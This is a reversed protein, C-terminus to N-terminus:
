CTAVAGKSSVQAKANAQVKAKLQAKAEIQAEIQAQAQAQAQVKALFPGIATQKQSASSHIRTEDVTAQKHAVSSHINTEDATAQKHAVSSQTEVKDVPRRASKNKLTASKCKPTAAAGVSVSVRASADATVAVANDVVKQAKEQRAQVSLTKDGLAACIQQGVLGAPHNSVARGRAASNLSITRKCEECGSIDPLRRRVADSVSMRRPEAGAVAHIEQSVAALTFNLGGEFRVFIISEQYCSQVLVQSNGPATAKVVGAAEDVGAAKVVGAAEDVGAAKVVGTAEDVGAVADAGAMKIEPAASAAAAVASQTQFAAVPAPATSQTNSVTAESVAGAVAGTSTTQLSAVAPTLTSDPLSSAATRTHNSFLPLKSSTGAPLRSGSALRILTTHQATLQSPADVPTAAPKVQAEFLVGFPDIRQVVTQEPLLGQDRLAAEPYTRNNYVFTAIGQVKPANPYYEAVPTAKVEITEPKALNEYEDWKIIRLAYEWTYSTPQADSTFTDLAESMKKVWWAHQAPSFVNHKLKCDLCGMVDERYSSGPGIICQQYAKLAAQIRKLDSRPPAKTLEECFSSIGQEAICPPITPQGAKSLVYTDLPPHCQDGVNGVRQLAVKIDVKQASVAQLTALTGALAVYSAIM